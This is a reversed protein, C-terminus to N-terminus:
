QVGQNHLLKYSDCGAQQGLDCAKGYYQKATSLNKRVGQGEVYSLGLFFCGDAYNWKHCLIEFYKNAKFFDGVDKYMLAVLSCFLGGECYQIGYGKEIKNVAVQCANKDKNKTCNIMDINLEAFDNPTMNGILLGARQCSSKDNNKFCNHRHWEEESMAGMSVNVVSALIGCVLALKRM